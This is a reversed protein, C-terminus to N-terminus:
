IATSETEPENPEDYNIESQESQKKHKKGKLSQFKKGWYQKAGEEWIIFNKNGGYRSTVFGIFGEVRVKINADFRIKDACTGAPEKGRAHSIFIFIKKKFKEKLRKYDNYAIGSYQVSDIVVIKPSKKRSLREVLQDFPENDLLRIKGHIEELGHRLFLDQMTKGHGEEHSNYLITAFRSLEKCLQITFNTKGQGSLAWIIMTFHDDVDGFSQKFKDSLELSNYKKALLEKVSLARAM